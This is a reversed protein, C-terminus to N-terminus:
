RGPTPNCQRRQAAFGRGTRPTRGDRRGGRQLSARHAAVQGLQKGQLHLFDAAGVGELGPPLQLGRQVLVVVQAIAAPHSGVQLIPDPVFLAAGQAAHDKAGRGPLARHAVLPDAPLRGLTGTLQAGEGVVSAKQDEGPHLHWVQGAM